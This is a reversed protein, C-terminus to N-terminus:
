KMERTNDKYIHAAYCACSGCIKLQDPEKLIDKRFFFIIGSSNKGECIECTQDIKDGARKYVKIVGKM